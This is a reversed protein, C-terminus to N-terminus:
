QKVATKMSVPPPEALLDETAGYIQQQEKIWQNTGDLTATIQDIRTSVLQPDTTLIAQERILEVQEQLRTMEADLFALKDHAESRKQLRQKLIDIQGTLSRRLEESVAGGALQTELNRIRTELQSGDDLSGASERVIRDIAQRTLLLRLYLWLLRGLGEGQAELGSPVVAARQQQELIATCREELARYRRQGEPGLQQVLEDVQAQWQRRSQWQRLAAVNRQFRENSALVGLYAMELGFGMIWFGPNLLGLLGFAALGVWNPPVFMGIPRASFAARLYDRLSPKM